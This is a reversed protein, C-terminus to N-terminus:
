QTETIPFHVRARCPQEIPAFALSFESILLLLIVGTVVSHLHPYKSNLLM